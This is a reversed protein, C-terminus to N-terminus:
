KYKEITDKSQVCIIVFGMVLIAGIIMSPPIIMVLNWCVDFLGLDVLLNNQGLTILNWIDLQLDRGGFLDFFKMVATTPAGIVEKGFIDFIQFLSGIFGWLAGILAYKKLEETEM